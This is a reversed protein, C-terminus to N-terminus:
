SRLHGGLAEAALKVRELFAQEDRDELTRDAARLVAHFALSRQGPALTGGEYLDFLDLSELLKGGAALLAAEIESYSRVTPVALAVDVKVAPMRAPARFRAGSANAAATDLAELDLLLVGYGVREGDLDAVVRPDARGGWALTAGDCRWRLAHVPHLWPALQEDGGPVAEIGQALGSQRLLDEAVCRVQAFLSDPGQVPIPQRQWAVFGLWTRERPEDHTRPEYGRANEFLRGAARERANEHAQQLLAAIPDRRILDADAQVPNVVRLHASEDGRLRKVWARELFAYAQTEFARHAGILRTALRRALRRGPRERPPEVPAQLPAAAIRHYGHLRGVEEILDAEIAVDKTARWSPVRVQWVRGAGTEVGFGLRELIGRTEDAGPDVGLRQACRVPDFAVRLGPDAAAGARAPAAAFEADPRARRLLLCYRRAAAEVGLPDLSKEYRSSADTRLAFRQAARRVRAARFAAAELLLLESGDQVASEAGGIVGALAIAREADAIVLESGDLTRTEGDLTALNEGSRAARVQVVGGHLKAADFAHLPQGTEFLVYNTLDVADNRPRAGVALLRARIARPSPRPGGPLRIPVGLYLPCDSDALAIRWQPAATPWTFDCDLPRLPRRLIAALERAFGYHGWLDPRHTLSKNDLELVADRLGLYDVLKAGVPADAPLELIGAHEESLELERESCIMGVSPAGRLKAAKIKLGGPLAAGVPAFAVKLGARVNSAGCVVDVAEAGGFAVKTVSLKDADPHRGCAVVEGVLVDAITEGTRALGEVEAVHLSLLEAVQEPTVGGLDVFDAIWGLSIKM